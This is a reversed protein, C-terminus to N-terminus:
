MLRDPTRLTALDEPSVKAPSLPILKMTIQVEYLVGCASIVLRRRVKRNVDVRNPTAAPKPPMPNCRYRSVNWTRWQLKRQWASKRRKEQLLLAANNKSIPLNKKATRHPLWRPAQEILGAGSRDHTRRRTGYLQQKTCYAGAGADERRSHRLYVSRARLRKHGPLTESRGDPMHLIISEGALAKEKELAELRRLLNM